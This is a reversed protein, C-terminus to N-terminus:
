SIDFQCILSSGGTYTCSQLSISGPSGHLFAVPNNICGNTCSGTNVSLFIPTGSKTPIPVCDLASIYASPESKGITTTANLFSKCSSALAQSPLVNEFFSLTGHSGNIGSSNISSRANLYAAASFWNPFSSNFSAAPLYSWGPSVLDNTKYSGMCIFYGNSLTAPNSPATLAGTRSLQDLMSICSTSGYFQAMFQNSNLSPALSGVVVSEGSTLAAATDSIYAQPSQVISKISGTGYVFIVLVVFVVPIIIIIAIIFELFANIGKKNSM